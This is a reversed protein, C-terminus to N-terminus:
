QFGTGRGIEFAFCQWVAHVSSRQRPQATSIFEPLMYVVKCLAQERIPQSLPRAGYPRPTSLTEAAHGHRCVMGCAISYTDPPTSIWVIYEYVRHFCRIAGSYSPKPGLEIHWPWDGTYPRLRRLSQPTVACSTRQRFRANPYWCREAASVM